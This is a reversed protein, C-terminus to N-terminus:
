FVFGSSHTYHRSSSVSFLVRARCLSRFTGPIRPSNCLSLPVVHEWSSAVCCFENLLCHRTRARFLFLLRNPPLQKAPLFSGATAIRASTFFGACCFQLTSRSFSCFFLPIRGRGGESRRPFISKMMVMIMMAGHMWLSCLLISMQEM